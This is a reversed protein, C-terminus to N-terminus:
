SPRSYLTLRIPYPHDPNDHSVVLNQLTHPILLLTSRFSTPAYQPPDDYQPQDVNIRLPFDSRFFLYDVDGLDISQGPALALVRQTGNDCEFMCVTRTDKYVRGGTDSLNQARADVRIQPM